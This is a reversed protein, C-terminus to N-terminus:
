IDPSQWYQPAAEMVVYYQNMPTYLTSALQQGFAGYLTNDILSPTLGLRYATDHDVDVMVELGHDKQDSNLDIIGPLNKLAQRIEPTWQNLDALTNASLTYQFQSNSQRGGVMIDQASQLYLLAGPVQGLVPRLRNIVGDSSIHRTALEKLTIYV